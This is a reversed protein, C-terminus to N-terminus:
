CVQRAGILGAIRQVTAISAREDVTTICRDRLVVRGNIVVHSVDDRGVAYVLHSYVDFIPVLHSRRLDVLIVDALKGPELSGLRDGMGLAAAGECTAMRVISRAPTLAPDEHTGRHLLAAMRMAHWLDLDNSSAPGDTGLALRVGAQMMEPVAAIGSGLKLNSMPCHVVVARTRALEAIEEPTLHVGHALITRPSPMNLRGLLEIPPAGRLKTVTKVENRTEVAHTSLLADFEDALAQAVLLIDPPVDYTSHPMVCPILLPSGQWSRLLARGRELRQDPALGDLGISGVFVPGTALRFGTRQASRALAEPYFYMDLATTAGSRIMEVYALEAAYAVNEEDIVQGSAERMCRLWSELPLDDALGRLLIMPTHTHVNILGPMVIAGRADIVEGAEFRGRLDHTPGIAVIKADRIAVAGDDLVRDDRDCTVVLGHEILLDIREMAEESM